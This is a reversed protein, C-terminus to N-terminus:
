RSGAVWRQYAISVLLLTAALGILSAVRYLDSLEGLDYLFVKVITALLFGLGARRLGAGRGRVGLVLLTLAFAAWVLSLTLDRAPLRHIPLEIANGTSFAHLVTLNLWAFLVATALGACSAASAGSGWFAGVWSARATTPRPQRTWRWGWLMVGAPVLYTYALWNLVPLGGAPHYRLVFPNLALRIAVVGLLAIATLELGTNPARRACYLLLGAWLALVITLWEREFYLCIALTLLAIAVAAFGARARELQRRIGRPALELRALRRHALASAGLALTGLLAPLGAEDIDAAVARAYPLWLVGLWLVPAAVAGVWGWPGSAFRRRMAFPALTVLLVGAAGAALHTGASETLTPVGHQLGQFVAVLPVLALFWLGEGLRHAAVAVAGALLLGLVGLLLASHDASQDHLGLGLGLLLALPLLAAGRRAARWGSLRPWFARRSLLQFALASSLGLLTYALLPRVLGFELQSLWLLGLSSGLLGGAALAFSPEDAQRARWLFLIAIFAWLLWWPRPSPQPRSLALGLSLLAFAGLVIAYGAASRGRHRAFALHFLLALLALLGVSQWLQTGVLPEPNLRVALVLCAALSAAIPQTSSGQRVSLWAAGGCLVLLFGGLIPLPVNLGREAALDLGVFAPAVAAVKGLDRWWTGALDDERWRDSALAFLGGLLLAATLAGTATALDPVDRLELALHLATAALAVVALGPWRRRGALLLLGGSLLFLYAALSPLGSAVETVMLPTAFGGALGIGAIVQSCHRDALWCGAATVLIMVALTPWPGVLDYLRHAAWFSAYFGVLAGGALANAAATYGRRRALRALGLAVASGALGMAVRIAPSLWGQEVAYRFLYLAALALAIGGLVAAGRIGLWREWEIAPKDPVPVPPVPPSSPM